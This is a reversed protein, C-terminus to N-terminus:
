LLEGTGLRHEDLAPWWSAAELFQKLQSALDPQRSALQKNISDTTSPQNGPKCALPPARVPVTRHACSVGTTEPHPRTLLEPVSVSSVM